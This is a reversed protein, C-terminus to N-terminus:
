KVNKAEEREVRKGRVNIWVVYFNIIDYLSYCFEFTFLLADGTYLKM